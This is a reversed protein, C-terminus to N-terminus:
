PIQAPDTTIYPFVPPLTCIAGSFAAFTASIMLSSAVLEMLCPNGSLRAPRMQIVPRWIAPLYYSITQWSSPEPCEPVAGSLLRFPRPRFIMLAEADLIRPAM